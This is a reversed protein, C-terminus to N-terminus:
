TSKPPRVKTIFGNVQKFEYLLPQILRYEPLSTMSYAVFRKPTFPPLTLDAELIKYTLTYVLSKDLMYKVSIFIFPTISILKEGTNEIEFELSRKVTNPKADYIEIQLRSRGSAWYSLWDPSTLVFSSLFDLLSIISEM